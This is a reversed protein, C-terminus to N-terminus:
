FRELAGEALVGSRMVARRLAPTYMVFSKANKAAIGLRLALTGRRYARLVPGAAAHVELARALAAASAFAYSIGEASSPSILGAAEGVCFVGDGGLWIDRYSPRLVVCGRRVGTEPFTCGFRELAQRADRMRQPIPAALRGPPPFAVGLLTAGRKPIVWGYFDTIAPHFFALYEGGHEADATFTDQVAIYRSELRPPIGLLRRVASGAGDAGVLMASQAVRDGDPGRLRVEWGAPGALRTAATLRGGAVAVGDPVLSLLWRDFATRNMNVYRRPYLRAIGSALDLARVTLPQRSDLVHDPLALGFRDLLARADPALLGGCCKGEASGAPSGSRVNGGDVLLVSRTSGLLRALTAGAPGAGIIIVDYM